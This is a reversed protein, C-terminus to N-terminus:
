LPSLFKIFSSQRPTLQGTSSYTPNRLSPNGSFLAKYELPKSILGGPRLIFVDNMKHSTEM